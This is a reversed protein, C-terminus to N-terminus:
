AWPGATWCTSAWIGLGAPVDAEAAAMDSRDELCLRSAVNTEVTMRSRLPSAFLDEPCSSGNWIGTKAYETQNINFAKAHPYAPRGPQEEPGTM